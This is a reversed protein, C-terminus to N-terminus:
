EGIGHAREIARAFEIALKYETYHLKDAAMKLLEQDSLRKPETYYLPTDKKVNPHHTTKDDWKITVDYTLDDLLSDRQADQRDQTTFTTM